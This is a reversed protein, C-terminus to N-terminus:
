GALTVGRGGGKTARDTVPTSPSRCGSTPAFGVARGACRRPPHRQTEVRFAPLRLAGSYAIDRDGGSGPEAMGRHMAAKPDEMDASDASQRGRWNACGAQEGSAPAHTAARWTRAAAAGSREADQGQRGVRPRPEAVASWAALWGPRPPDRRGPRRRWTSARVRRGLVSAGPRAGRPDLDECPRESRGLHSRRWRTRPFICV